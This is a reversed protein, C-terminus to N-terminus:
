IRALVKRSGPKSRLDVLLIPLLIVRLNSSFLTKVVIDYGTTTEYM